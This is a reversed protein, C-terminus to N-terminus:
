QTAFAPHLVLLSAELQSWHVCRAYARLRRASNQLLLTLILGAGRGSEFATPSKRGNAVAPAEGNRLKLDQALMAARQVLSRTAPRRAVWASPVVAESAPRAKKAPNAPPPPAAAAADAPPQPAVPLSRTVNYATRVAEGAAGPAGAGGRGAASARRRNSRGHGHGSGEFGQIGFGIHQSPNQALALEPGYQLVNRSCPPRFRELLKCLSSETTSKQGVSPEFAVPTEINHLM